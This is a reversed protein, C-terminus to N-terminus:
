KDDNKYKKYLKFSPTDMMQKDKVIVASGDEIGYFQQVVDNAFKKIKKKDFYENITPIQNPHISFKASFRLNSTFSCERKLIDLDEPQYYRCVADFIPIDHRRAKTYVQFILHTLPNTSSLDLPREIELESSLDEYGVVVVDEENLTSLIENINEIGSITEIAVILPKNSFYKKAKKIEKANEIKALLVADPNLKNIIDKDKKFYDTGEKNPRIVTYFDRIQTTNEFMNALTERASDKVEPLVSDELDFVLSDPKTESNNIINKLFSEKDAPIFHISRLDRLKM